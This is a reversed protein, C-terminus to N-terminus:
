SSTGSGPAQGPRSVAVVCVGPTASLQWSKNVTYGPLRLTARRGVQLRGVTVWESGFRRVEVQPAPGQAYLEVRSDPPALMPRRLEECGAPALSQAGHSLSVAGLNVLLGDTEGPGGDAGYTTLVHRLQGATLSALGGLRVTAGDPVGANPDMVIAALGRTVRGTGAAQRAFAQADPRVAHALFAAVLLVGTAALIANKRTSASAWAPLHVRRMPVMALLIYGASVWEYRFPLEDTLVVIVRSWMLGLWWFLLAASWALVNAAAGLGQRIRWAAHVLFVALLVVGLLRNGLALFRFSGAAHGLADGALELVGPRLDQVVESDPPALVVWWGLWAATPLIVALWRLRTARSCLSHVVAAVAVAVGGGSSALAFSLSAAALLDCRRGRGVLAYGCVIAGLLSLSHNLGGPELGIGRFWLLLLGMVAAVPAGLRRRAALFMAVPVAVRSVIGAVQYPLHSTFGFLELLLRYLGLITVSLHGNYPDVIDQTRLVQLAMPWEDAFFWSDATIRLFYAASGTVVLGFVVVVPWSGHLEHTRRSATPQRTGGSVAPDLVTTEAMAGGSYEITTGM